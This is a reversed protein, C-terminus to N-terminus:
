INPPMQTHCSNQMEKDAIEGTLFMLHIWFVASLQGSGLLFVFFMYVHVPECMCSEM